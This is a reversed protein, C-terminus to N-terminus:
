LSPTRPTAIMWMGTETRMVAAPKKTVTRDPDLTFTFRRLLRGLLVKQENLSFHQGICNRPGASFPIFAYSDKDKMNDPHFREPKFSYPDPWVTPNHHVNIINITCPTGVPITVGDLSLPQTIERSILPVPCHLRMSEKIVMTLFEMKSLDSWEINDSDRGELIHDVEAQVREQYEPHECLSYLAWSIASATTDHGEFM